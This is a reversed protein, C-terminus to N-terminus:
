VNPHYWQGSHQEIWSKCGSCAGWTRGQRRNYSFFYCGALDTRQKHGKGFAQLICDVEACTRGFRYEDPYQQNPISSWINPPISGRGVSQEAAFGCKGSYWQNTESDWMECIVAAKGTKRNQLRGLAESTANELSKFKSHAFRTGSTTESRKYRSEQYEKEYAEKRKEAALIAEEKEASFLDLKKWTQKNPKARSDRKPPREKREEEDDGREKNKEAGSGEM